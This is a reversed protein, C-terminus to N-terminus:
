RLPLQDFPVLRIRAGDAYVTGAPRGYPRVGLVGGGGRAWKRKAASRLASPGVTVLIAGMERPRGRPQLERGVGEGM